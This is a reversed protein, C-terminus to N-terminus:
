LNNDINTAPLHSRRRQIIGVIDNGGNYPRILIENSPQLPAIIGGINSIRLNGSKTITSVVYGIEDVHGSLMIKPGSDGKRFIVSGSRDYLIDDAFPKGYERVMKQIEFEHGSPGWANTLKGLMEYKLTFDTM